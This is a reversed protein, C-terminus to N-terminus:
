YPLFGSIKYGERLLIFPQTTQKKAYWALLELEAYSATSEFEKYEALVCATMLTRHICYKALKEAWAYLEKERVTTPASPPWAQIRAMPAPAAAANDEAPAPTAAPKQWPQIRTSWAQIRTVPVPAAAPTQWAQSSSKVTANIGQVEENDLKLTCLPCNGKRGPDLDLWQKLCKAHYYHSCKTIWTASKDNEDICIGCVRAETEESAAASKEDDRNAAGELVPLSLSGLLAILLIKKM